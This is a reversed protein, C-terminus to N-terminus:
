PLMVPESALRKGLFACVERLNATCASLELLGTGPVDPM